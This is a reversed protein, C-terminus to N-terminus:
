LIYELNNLFLKLMFEDSLPFEYYDSNGDLHIAKNNSLNIYYDLSYTTGYDCTPCGGQYVDYSSSINTIGGDKLQILM